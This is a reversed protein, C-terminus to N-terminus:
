RVFSPAEYLLATCSKNRVINGTHYNQMQLFYACLSIICETKYHTRESGIYPLTERGKKWPSVGLAIKRIRLFGYRYSLKLALFFNIVLFRKTAVPSSARHCHVFVFLICRFTVKFVFKGFCLLSATPLAHLNNWYQWTGSL